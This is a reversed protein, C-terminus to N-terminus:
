QQKNNLAEKKKRAEENLFTARDTYAKRFAALAQEIVPEAVGSVGQSAPIIDLLEDAEVAALAHLNFRVNHEDRTCWIFVDGQADKVIRQVEVPGGGIEMKPYPKKFSLDGGHVALARRVETRKLRGLTLIAWTINPDHRM